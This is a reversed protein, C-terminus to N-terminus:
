KSNSKVIFVEDGKIQRLMSANVIYPQYVGKVKNPRTIYQLQTFFADGAKNAVARGRGM